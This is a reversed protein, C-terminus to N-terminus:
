GAQLFTPTDICLKSRLWLAVRNELLDDATETKFWGNRGRAPADFWDNFLQRSKLYILTIPCTILFIPPPMPTTSAVHEKAIAASRRVFRDVSAGTRETM